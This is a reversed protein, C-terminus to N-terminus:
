PFIVSIGLQPPQPVARDGNPISKTSITYNGVCSLSELIQRSREVRAYASELKTISEISDMHIPRRDWRKSTADNQGELM